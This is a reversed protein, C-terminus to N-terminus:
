HALAGSGSAGAGAKGFPQVWEGEGGGPPQSGEAKAASAGQAGPYTEDNAEVREFAGLLLGAAM